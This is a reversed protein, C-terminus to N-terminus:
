LIIHIIMLPVFICVISKFLKVGDCITVAKKITIATNIIIVVTIIGLNNDPYLFILDVMSGILFLFSNFYLCSFCISIFLCFISCIFLLTSLRISVRSLKIVSLLSVFSFIICDTCCNCSACSFSLNSAYRESINSKALEHLFPLLCVALSNRWIM